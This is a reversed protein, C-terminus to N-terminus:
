EYRGFSLYREGLPITLMSKEQTNEKKKEPPPPSTSTCRASESRLGMLHYCHHCMKSSYIHGDHYPIQLVWMFNQREMGVICTGQVFFASVMLSRSSTNSVSMQENAM